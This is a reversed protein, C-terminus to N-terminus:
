SNKEQLTDFYTSKSMAFDSSAQALLIDIWAIERKIQKPMKKTERKMASCNPSNGGSIRQSM